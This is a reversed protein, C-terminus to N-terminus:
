ERTAGMGYESGGTGGGGSTSGIGSTRLAGPQKVKDTRYREMMLGSRAGDTDPPVTAGEPLPDVLQAAINYNVAEGFSRDYDQMAPPSACGALLASLGLAAFAIKIRAPM